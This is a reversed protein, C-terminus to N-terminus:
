VEHERLFVYMDEGCVEITSILISPPVNKLSKSVFLPHYPPPLSVLQADTGRM